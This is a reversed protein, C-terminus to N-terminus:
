FTFIMFMNLVDTNVELYEGKVVTLEKDNNATRPYTVQVIRTNRKQLTDLWNEQIRKYSRDDAGNKEISDVSIDSKASIPDLDRDQDIKSDRFSDRSDNYRSEFVIEENAPDFDNFESGYQSDRYHKGDELEDM